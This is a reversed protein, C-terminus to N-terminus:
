QQPAPLWRESRTNFQPQGTITVARDGVRMETGDGSVGREELLAFPESIMGQQLLERYRVMGVFDATLRDLDAQFVEDAQTRGAEWGQRLYKQWLIKEEANKPLLLDPPPLVKGWDRELYLRWDRAATVIRAQRNIKLVREATAAAQGGATVLVARQAESVVPPEILLGSPAQVLLQRFDFTRSLASDQEALRRQIEFTRLALGARAGYSLAAERLGDTRIQLGMTNGITSEDTGRRELNLMDVLAPPPPSPEVVNPTDLVDQAQAVMPAAFLLAALLLALITPQLKKSATKPLMAFKLLM